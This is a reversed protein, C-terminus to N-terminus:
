NGALCETGDTRDPGGNVSLKPRCGGLHSCALLRPRDILENISSILCCGAMPVSPAASLIEAEDFISWIQNKVLDLILWLNHDHRLVIRLQKTFFAQLDRGLSQRHQFGNGSLRVTRGIGNGFKDSNFDARYRSLGNVISEANQGFLADNSADLWSSGRRQVLISHTVIVVM